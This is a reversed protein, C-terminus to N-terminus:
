YETKIYNNSDSSLVVDSLDLSNLKNGKAFIEDSMYLINEKVNSDLEFSFQSFCILLLILYNMNILVFIVLFLNKILIPTVM